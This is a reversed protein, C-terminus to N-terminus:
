FFILHIGYNKIYCLLNQIFNPQIFIKKKFRMYFLANSFHMEIRFWHHQMSFIRHLLVSCLEVYIFFEQEVIEQRKEVIEEDEVILM